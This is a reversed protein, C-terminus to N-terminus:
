LRRSVRTGVFFYVLADTKPNAIRGGGRPKPDGVRDAYTPIM